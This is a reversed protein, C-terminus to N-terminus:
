GFVRTFVKAALIKVYNQRSVVAGYAQCAFMTSSNVKDIYRPNQVLFMTLGVGGGSHTVCHLNDLKLEDFLYCFTAAFDYTAITEFNFENKPLPSHGHGRWEMIYCAHGLKALYEAIRLCTHKDSFTGHTLLINQGNATPHGATDRSNHNSNDHNFVSSDFVKWVAVQEGDKTTVLKLSETIM